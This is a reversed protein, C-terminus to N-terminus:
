SKASSNPNRKDARTVAGKGAKTGGGWAQAKRVSDGGSQRPRTGKHRGSTAKSSRQTAREPMHTEAIKGAFTAGCMDNRAPVLRAAFVRVALVADAGRVVGDNTSSISRSFPNS